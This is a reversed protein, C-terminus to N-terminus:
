HPKTDMHAGTDHAGTDHGGMDHGAPASPMEVKVEVTVKGAKEFGLTLPFTEGEKLPAKLGILMVHLGGPKLVAPAGANVDIADVPRMRMIDGEIVHTHLEVKGAVPSAAEILRDATKGKTTITMYTAGNAAAGASPRAWPHDITLDGLSYDHAWAAATTMAALAIAAFLSRKM